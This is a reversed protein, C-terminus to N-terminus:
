WDPLMSKFNNINIKKKFIWVFCWFDLSNKQILKAVSFQRM